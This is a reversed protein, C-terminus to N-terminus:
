AACENGYPRSRQQLHSFQQFAAFDLMRPLFEFCLASRRSIRSRPRYRLLSGNLLRLRRCIAAKSNKGSRSPPHCILRARRINEAM